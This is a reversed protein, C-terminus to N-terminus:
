HLWQLWQLDFTYYFHVFDRWFLQSFNFFDFRKTVIFRCFINKKSSTQDNKGDQLFQGMHIRIEWQDLSFYCLEVKIYISLASQNPQFSKNEDSKEPCNITDKAFFHDFWKKQCWSGWGRQYSPTPPWLDLNLRASRELVSREKYYKFFVNELFYTFNQCQVWILCRRQM